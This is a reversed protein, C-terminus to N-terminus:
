QNKTNMFTTIEEARAFTLERVLDMDWGNCQKYIAGVGGFLATSFDFGLETSATQVAGADAGEIEVLPALAPWENITVETAGKLWTERCSEQYLKDTFGLKEMFLVASDFDSVEFEVEETGDVRSRDFAHKYTMTIRDGEDRVRGWRGGDLSENNESLLFTYRRMLRWPKVMAYGQQALRERCEEPNVNLFKAEVELPM